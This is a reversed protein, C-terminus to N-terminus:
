SLSRPLKEVAALTKIAKKIEETENGIVARVTKGGKPPWFGGLLTCIALDRPPTAILDGITRGVVHVRVRAHLFTARSVGKGNVSLAVFGHAAGSMRARTLAERITAAVEGRFRALGAAEFGGDTAIEDRHEDVWECADNIASMIRKWKGRAAVELDVGRAHSATAQERYSGLLESMAATLPGWRQEYSAVCADRVAKRLAEAQARERAKLETPTRGM